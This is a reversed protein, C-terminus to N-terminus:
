MTGFLAEIYNLQLFVLTIIQDSVNIFESVHFALLNNETQVLIPEPPKPLMRDAIIIVQAPMDIGDM